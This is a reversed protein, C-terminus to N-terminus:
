DLRATPERGAAPAGVVPVPEPQRARRVRRVVRAAGRAPVGVLLALLGAISRDVHGFAIRRDWAARLAGGVAEAPPRHPLGADARRAVLADLRPALDDLEAGHFYNDRLWAPDPHRFRRAVLDAESGFVGGGEFVVNILAPSVGFDDLALVPVGRGIAEVIATSSVTALGEASELALGMPEASVVLNEPLPGDEALLVPYPDREAHTQAEGRSARIKVVVRRTPDALAAARLMRALRMRDPRERPVIAQVAFVLDTGGDVPRRDLFPLTALAVDVGVGLEAALAAFERSERVSHAVFLDAQRRYRLAKRTAPISIGPLGTAIVPRDRRESVIRMLVAAVPGRTAFLVVDADRRRLTEDLARLPVLELGDPAFGSAALAAARQTASPAASTEVLALRREWRAPLAALTAAAWKLYSDSDALALIRM